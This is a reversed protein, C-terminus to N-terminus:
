SMELVIYEFAKLCDEANSIGRIHILEYFGNWLEKLLLIIGLIIIILFIHEVGLQIAKVMNEANTYGWTSYNNFEAVIMAGIMVPVIPLRRDHKQKVKEIDEKICLTANEWHMKTLYAKVDKADEDLLIRKVDWSDNWMGSWKKLSYKESLMAKVKESLLYVSVLQNGLLIGFLVLMSIYKSPNRLWWVLPIVLILLFSFLFYIYYGKVYRFVRNRTGCNKSFYKLVSESM